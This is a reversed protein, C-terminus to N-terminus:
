DDVEITEGRSIAKYSLYVGWLLFGISFIVHIINRGLYDILTGSLDSRRGVELVRPDSPDYVVYIKQGVSLGSQLDVQGKYGDYKILTEYVYRTNERIGHRKYESGIVRGVTEVGDSYLRTSTIAGVIIGSVYMVGLCLIIIPLGLILSIGKKKKNNKIQTIKASVGTSISHGCVSCYLSGDVEDFEADKECYGCYSKM